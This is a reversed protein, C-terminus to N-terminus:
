DSLPLELFAEKKMQQIELTKIKFYGKYCSQPESHTGVAVVSLSSVPCCQLPPSKQQCPMQIVHFGLLRLNEILSQIIKAPFHCIWAPVDFKPM